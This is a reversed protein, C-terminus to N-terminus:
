RRSLTGRVSGRGDDTEWTEFFSLERDGTRSVTVSTEDVCGPVNDTEKQTFHFARGRRSIFALSGGCSSGSLQRGQLRGATQSDPDTITLDIRITEPASTPGDEVASGGWSGVPSSPSSSPASEPEPGTTTPAPAMETETRAAPRDPAGETGSRRENTRAAILLGGGAALAVAVLGAAATLWAYRRRRRPPERSPQQAVEAHAPSAARTGEPSPKSQLPYTAGTETERDETQGVAAPGTAVSREPESVVEGRATALVARGFDGASPYREGPDKAMARAIVPDFRRGLPAETDALAPPPENAHGWMKRADSGEYPLRGSLTEFLVCALSYIDARADIQEAQLQEPAVYNLTGVWEGTNTLGRSHSTAEKTLGFDTLYVEPPPGDGALLINAPKVDRHVLGKAHAADLAKAVEAVVHAALGPDLRGREALLRRLDTGAIYRMALYALGEHSGAAFIPAVNRQDIAAAHRAEREFRAQFDPDAALQPTVIKLAVRRGLRVEEALFVVGM